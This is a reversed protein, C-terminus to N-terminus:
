QCDSCGVCGEAEDFLEVFKITLWWRQRPLVTNDSNCQRVADLILISCQRGISFQM